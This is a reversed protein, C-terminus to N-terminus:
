NAIAFQCHDLMAGVEEYGEISVLNRGKGEKEQSFLSEGKTKKKKRMKRKSRSPLPSLPSNKNQQSFENLPHHVGGGKGAKTQKLSANRLGTTVNCM